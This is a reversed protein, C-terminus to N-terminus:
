SLWAISRFASPAGHHVDLLLAAFLAERPRVLGRVIPKNKKSLVDRQRDCYDNFIAISLQMALHATIVLALVNWQVHPWSALLAFGTVAIVNFMVPGPHCLWFFGRLVDAPRRKGIVNVYDSLSLRREDALAQKRGCPDCM